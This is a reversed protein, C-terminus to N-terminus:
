KGPQSAASPAPAPPEPERWKGLAVLREKLGERAIGLALARHAHFLAQEPEGADLLILGVNYHTFANDGAHFRALEIQALAEPKRKGRILFSAYLLRATTDDPQFRVAREFYCEVPRPLTAPQPSNMKEGYRMVAVLARHHNPFVRLTYDLEMGIPGSEPGVLAEIRPSFHRGTEEVLKLREHHPMSTNSKDRDPRYDFPGFANGLEGCGAASVQAVANACATAALVAILFMPRRM